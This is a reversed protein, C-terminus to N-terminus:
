PAGEPRITHFVDRITHFVDAALSVAPPREPQRRLWPEGAAFGEVALVALALGAAWRAWFRNRWSPTYRCVRVAGLLITLVGFYILTVGLAFGVWDLGLRLVRFSAEGVALAYAVALPLRWRSRRTILDSLAWWGVALLAMVCAAAGLVVCLVAIGAREEQSASGVLLAFAAVTVAGASIWRRRGVNAQELLTGLVAYLLGAGCATAATAPEDLLFAGGALLALLLIATAGAAADFAAPLAISRGRCLLTRALLVGAILPAVILSAM